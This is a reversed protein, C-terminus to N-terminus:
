SKMIITIMMMVERTGAQSSTTCGPGVSACPQLIVENGVPKHEKRTLEQLQSRLVRPGHGREHRGLHEGGDDAGHGGEGGVDLDLELGRLDTAIV